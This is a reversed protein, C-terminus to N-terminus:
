PKKWCGEDDRLWWTPSYKYVTQGTTLPPFFRPRASVSKKDSRRLLIQFGHMTQGCPEQQNQQQHAHEDWHSQRDGGRRRGRTAHPLRHVVTRGVISLELSRGSAALVVTAAGQGNRLPCM